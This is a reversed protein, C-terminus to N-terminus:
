RCCETQRCRGSRRSCRPACALQSGGVGLASRAQNYRERFLELKQRADRPDTYVNWYVEERKLTGHFRELLGLQTPMRYGIRVQSFASLGTGAIRLRSLEDRFRHAIFSSGNDTVLFVPQSLSGHLREAEKVALRLARGAEVAAYSHTFRCALLYRSYYDIVTRSYYDIVTVAYWWGYGPVRIYTVDMQWLADPKTPLLQYLRAVEQRAREETRKKLRHLLGADKMIRYVKRVAVTEDLRRCILAIKKYGYWPFARAVTEVVCREWPTIERAQPGRRPSEKEPSPPRGRAAVRRYWTARGGLADLVKTLRVRRASIDIETKM